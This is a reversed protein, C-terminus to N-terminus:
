IIELVYGTSTDIISGAGTLGDWETAIPTDDYDECNEVQQSCGSALAMARLTAFDSPGGLPAYFFETQCNAPVLTSTAANTKDVTITTSNNTLQAFTGHFLYYGNDTPDNAADIYIQCYPDPPINGPGPCFREIQRIGPEPVGTGLASIENLLVQYDESSAEAADVYEVTISYDAVPIASNTFSIQNVLENTLNDNFSVSQFYVGFDDSNVATIVGNIDFSIATISATLDQDRLDNNDAGNVGRTEFLVSTDLRNTTIPTSAPTIIPAINGPGRNTVPVQVNTTEGDYVTTVNFVFNFLRQEEVYEYFVVNYYDATTEIQFTIAPDGLVGTQVLNFYNDVNNGPTNADTVSMTVTLQTLLPDATDVPVGFLDVVEFETDLIDGGSGLGEDWSGTDFSSIDAGGQSESLILFNLDSILGSTTTEWYIDLNSVVPSTEYVGLYQLGPLILSGRNAANDAGPSIYLVDGEELM